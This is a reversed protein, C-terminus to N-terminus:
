PRAARPLKWLAERMFRWTPNKGEEEFEVAIWALKGDIAVGLAPYIGDGQGSMCLCGRGAAM